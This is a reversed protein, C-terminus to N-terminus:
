AVLGWREAIIQAVRRSSGGRAWMARLGRIDPAPTLALALLHSAAAEYAQLQRDTATDQHSDPQSHRSRLSDPGKPAGDEKPAGNQQSRV